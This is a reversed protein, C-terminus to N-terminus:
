HPVPHRMPVTAASSAILVTASRRNAASLRHPRASDFHASDGTELTEKRDDVTLRVTGSEVHLWEEGVHEALTTPKGAALEIRVVAITARPGSLVTYRGDQGLHVPADGARVLHLDDEEREEVLRSVSVGYVRALQLLAGISPQREGKELRSLHPASIGTQEALASLTIGREARLERLRESVRLDIDDVAAM